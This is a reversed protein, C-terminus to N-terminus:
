SLPQKLLAQMVAETDRSKIDVWNAIKAGVKKGEVGHCYGDVTLYSGYSEASPVVGGYKAIINRGADNSEGGDCAYSTKTWSCDLVFQEPLLTMEKTKLFNASEM